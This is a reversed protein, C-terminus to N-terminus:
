KKVRKKGENTRMSVINALQCKTSWINEKLFCDLNNKKYLM